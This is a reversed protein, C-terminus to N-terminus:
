NSIKMGIILCKNFRCAQCQNRTIKNVLCYNSEQCKYQLKISRKFFKRCPVCSIGGFNNNAPTDGCVHCIKDDSTIQLQQRLTKQCLQLLSPFREQESVKGFKPDMGISICKEHRCFKCETRNTITIPCNKNCEEYKSEISRRFFYACAKCSIGGFNNCTSKDGCVECSTIVSNEESSFIQSSTALDM